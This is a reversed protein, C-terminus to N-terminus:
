KKSQISMKKAIIHSKEVNLDSDNTIKINNAKFPGVLSSKNKLNSKSNHPELKYSPLKYVVGQGSLKKSVPTLMPKKMM